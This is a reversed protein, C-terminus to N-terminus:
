RKKEKFVTAQRMVSPPPNGIEACIKKTAFFSSWKMKGPGRELILYHLLPAFDYRDGYFQRKAELRGLSAVMDAAQLAPFHEDNAFTLSILKMRLPTDARRIGNFHRLCTLATEEDHDCIIGVHDSEASHEVVEMVSRAFGLYYPNEVSGYQARIGKPISKFGEVDLASILGFELHENICDAFPKLDEIRKAASKAPLISGVKRSLRSLVNMHFSPMGYYRLLKNWEENFRELQPQTACVGAFAVVPHDSQKGSEDFFGHLIAM